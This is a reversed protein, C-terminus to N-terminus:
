ENLKNEKKEKKGLKVKSRIYMYTDHKKHKRWSEWIIDEAPNSGGCKHDSTFCEYQEAVSAVLLPIRTITKDVVYM